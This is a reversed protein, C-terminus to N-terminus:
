DETYVPILQYDIGNAVNNIYHGNNIDPNIKNEQHENDFSLNCDEILHKIANERKKYLGESKLVGNRSLHKILKWLKM